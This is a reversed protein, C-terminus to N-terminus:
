DAMSTSRKSFILSWLNSASWVLLLVFRAQNIDLPMLTCRDTVNELHLHQCGAVVLFEAVAKRRPLGQWLRHLKACRRVLVGCQAGSRRYVPQAPREAAQPASRRKEEACQMSCTKNRLSLAMTRSINNQM